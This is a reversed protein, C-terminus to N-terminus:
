KSRRRLRPTDDGLYNAVFSTEVSTWYRLRNRWRENTKRTKGMTLSFSFFTLVRISALVRILYSQVVGIGSQPGLGMSLSQKRSRNSRWGQKKRGCAISGVTSGVFGAAQSASNTRQKCIWIASDESDNVNYSWSQLFAHGNAHRQSM